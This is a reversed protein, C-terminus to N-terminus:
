AAVQRLPPLCHILEHVLGNLSQERLYLPSLACRIESNQSRSFKIKCKM